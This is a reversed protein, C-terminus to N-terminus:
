VAGGPRLVDAIESALERGFTLREEVSVGGTYNGALFLGPLARRVSLDLAHMRRAHGVGYRPIVDKWRRIRSLVVRRGADPGLARGLDELAHAELAGDDLGEVHESAYISTIAGQGDPARGAFVRSTFLTGLV